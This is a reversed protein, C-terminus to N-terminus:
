FTETNAGFHPIRYMGRGFKEIKGKKVLKDLWATLTDDSSTIQLQIAAELIEAKRVSLGSNEAMKSSIIELIKTLSGNLPAELMGKLNVKAEIQELVLTSANQGQRSGRDYSLPLEQRTAMMFLDPTMELDKQKTCKITVQRSEDMTVRFESDMAAKLVSSGRAREADSHGSHHVLLAHCGYRAVLFTNIHNIFMSMGQTDNEDGSNNSAVTDIVFLVPHISNENELLAEIHDILGQAAQKSYFDIACNSLYFPVKDVPCENKIAWGLMRKKLGSLGEGAIYFVAGQQLTERGCFSKGTAVSLAIDLAVFSKGNAPPGFFLSLGQRVILGDILCDDDASLGNVANDFKVFISPSINKADLDDSKIEIIEEDLEIAELHEVDSRKKGLNIYDTLDKVNDPLPTIIVCNAVGNLNAYVQRAHNNGPEDGDPIIVVNAGTFYKGFESQWKGAGGSNCTAVLGISHATQVDKEGEVIYITEKSKIAAIIKPLMYPVRKVGAISWVWDSGNPRRQSFKKPDSRVVQYLLQGDEDEYNYFINKKRDQQNQMDFYYEPIKKAMEAFSCGAHCFLVMEKEKGPSITLSPYSDEHAPCTCNWSGDKNQKAKGLYKALQEIKNENM